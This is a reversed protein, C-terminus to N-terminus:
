CIGKTLIDELGRINQRYKNTKQRNKTWVTESKITVKAIEALIPNKDLKLNRVAAM